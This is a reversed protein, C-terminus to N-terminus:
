IYHSGCHYHTSFKSLITCFRKLFQKSFFALIPLNKEGKFFFYSCFMYSVTSGPPFYDFIVMIKLAAVNSKTSNKGFKMATCVYQPNRFAHIVYLVIFKFLPLKDSSIRCFRLLAPEILICHFCTVKELIIRSINSQLLIKRIKFKEM